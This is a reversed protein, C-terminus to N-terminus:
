TRARLRSAAARDLMWTVTGHEPAIRRAPAASRGDELVSAVAEAKSIGTVLFVVARAANLLRPTMTIRKARLKPVDAADVLRSEDWSAGPFLSATHGDDGLGLLVLDLRPTPEGAVARRLEEEYMRAAEHPDLEGRMRHVRHEDVAVADLLARRAMGYNSDPHDAAVDREDSWFIEVRSWDVISSRFLEYIPAPTSGGTLVLTTTSARRLADVLTHTIREAAARHMEPAGDFVLVEPSM